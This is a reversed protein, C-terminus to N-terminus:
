KSLQITKIVTAWKALDQRMFAGFDEPGMDLIEAGLDSVQKRFEPTALIAQLHSRLAAVIPAPTGAPALVGYWIVASYNPYGFETVSPIDPVADSRKATTIAIATLRGAQVLPLGTSVGSFYMDIEGSMVGNMAQGGGRYPVHLLDIGAERKLLEGALHTPSGTGASAFTLKGPQAKARAILDPMSTIGSQPSVVLIMPNMAILSVPVLDRVPDYPLQSSLSPSVALAGSSGFLLTYGDPAAQAEQAAALEGNSGSKNEIVVPQKLREALRAGLLRALQDNPGGPPFGVLFRVPRDPYSAAATRAQDQAPSAAVATLSTVCAALALCATRLGRLGRATMQNIAGCDQM